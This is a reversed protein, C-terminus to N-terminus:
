KQCYFYTWHATFSKNNAFNNEKKLQEFYNTASQEIIENRDIEEKPNPNIGGIEPLIGAQLRRVRVFNLWDSYSVKIPIYTKKINNFGLSLLSQYYLDENRPEPFIFKRQTKSNEIKAILNKKYEKYKPESKITNIAIDHIKNITSDILLIEKKRRTSEINGSQFIFFGGPKLSRYIGKFVREIDPILHVTNACIVLDAKDTGIIDDLTKYEKQLNKSLLQFKVRKDKHLLQYANTLWSPSNDILLLTSISKIKKLIYIASSGTGAGFDVVLKKRPNIKQIIKILGNINSKHWRTNAVSDHYSKAGNSVERDPSWYNTVM